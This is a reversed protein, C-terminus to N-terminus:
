LLGPLLNLVILGVAVAALAVYAGKNWAWVKAGDLPMVPIMNFGALIANVTAIQSLIFVLSFTLLSSVRTFLALYGAFFLVSVVINTAPGAASIRGNQETSVPGSIWTAGPAGYLFGIVAALVFAFLLGRPNYRFEAWFGYRQAVVKHMVEHLGVGTGVALLSAPFVIALFLSPNSLFSTLESRIFLVTFAGSLALIAVALQGLETRSFRVGPKPRDPYVYVPPAAYESYPGRMSARVSGAYKPNHEGERPGSYNRGEREPLGEYGATTPLLRETSTSSRRARPWPVRGVRMRRSGTATRAPGHPGPPSGRPRADLARPRVVGARGRASPFRCSRPRARRM